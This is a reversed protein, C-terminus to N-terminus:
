NGMKNTIIMNKIKSKKKFFRDQEIAIQNIKLNTSQNDKIFSNLDNILINKRNM